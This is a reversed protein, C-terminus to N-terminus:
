DRRNYGAGLCFVTEDDNISDADALLVLGIGVRQVTLRRLRQLLHQFVDGLAAGIRVGKGRQGTTEGAQLTLKVGSLKGFQAVKGTAFGEGVEGAVEEAGHVGVRLDGSGFM